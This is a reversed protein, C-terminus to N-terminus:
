EIVEKVFIELTENKFYPNLIYMIEFKHEKFNVWMDTKLGDIYRIIIKHTVNTLITDAQANQLKGTQPIIEAWVTMLKSLKNITELLENKEKTNGWIEVRHRLSGPNIAM